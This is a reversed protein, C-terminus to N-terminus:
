MWCFGMTHRAWCTLRPTRATGPVRGRHLGGQHAGQLAASEPRGRGGGGLDAHATAEKKNFILSIMGYREGEAGSGPQRWVCFPSCLSSRRARRKVNGGPSIKQLVVPGGGLDLGPLGGVGSALPPFFVFNDYTADQLIFLLQYPNPLLAGPLGDGIGWLLLFTAMISLIGGAPGYTRFLSVALALAVLGLFWGLVGWPSCGNWARPLCTGPLTWSLGFPGCSGFCRSGCLNCFSADDKRIEYLM